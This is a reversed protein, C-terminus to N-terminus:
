NLLYRTSSFNKSNVELTFIILITIFYAMIHDELNITDVLIITFM